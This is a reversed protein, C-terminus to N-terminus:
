LQQWATDIDQAIDPLISDLYTLDADLADPLQPGPSPSVARDDSQHEDYTLSSRFPPRRPGAQDEGLLSPVTQSYFGPKNPFVPNRDGTWDGVVQSSISVFPGVASDVLEGESSGVGNANIDQVVMLVDLPTCGDADSVDYYKPPSFQETPLSTNNPRSNIYEIILLVDLPTVGDKGNVDYPELYNHWPNPGIGTRADPEAPALERHGVNDTAISYFAYKHGESGTFPAETDTTNNLWLDFPGNDTSVYIDFGSIGSGAPDDQGDWRITVVENTTTSPLTEVQSTPGAADITNVVPPTDIPDNFDFYIRAANQIKTGSPLGVITNVVYSISGDGRGFEDNPYLLGVLPNEPMWGTAPDLAMLSVSLTRSSRDLAIDVDIILDNGEITRELRAQYSDLGAPIAFIEGGLTFETLEFTTLDLNEDFTDTIRIWQAPATADAQNEFRITYPMVISGDTAIYGDDGYGAPGLKDNPDVSRVPQSSSKQLRRSNERSIEIITKITNIPLYKEVEDIGLFKKVGEWSREKLIERFSETSFVGEAVLKAILLKGKVGVTAYVDKAAAELVRFSDRKYRERDAREEMEDRLKLSRGISLPMPGSFGPIIIYNGSPDVFTTPTNDSYTYLNLGDAIGVPDKQLFRGLAGDFFRARMFELSNAESMVGWQGVFQFDNAVTETWALEGGFPLYSYTNIPAGLADTLAATSGLADFDYYYSGTATTQNVLGLGHGYGVQWANTTGDYQGVVNGLGTPDIVYDTVRGDVSVAVRNGFADYTYEYVSGDPKSVIVLKNDTNYVYETTEGSTTERILNGDEDYQYITDGVQTYQNLENSTYANTVGNITTSTRNGLADYEYAIDQVSLSSGFTPTFVAHTLQGIADYEYTWTGDLTTMSTRLGAADYEYEFKSTVSGDPAHNLLSTLQGAVDYDYTTYTGNGKDARSLRSLADYSYTVIVSDDEDTLQSLRGLSDYAYNTQHGLEDTMSARRGAADYAYGLFRDDPYDIRTLYDNADHTFTTTGTPDVSETMNGRTDYTFTASSADAYTRSTVRGEADLTYQVSQGRRNIWEDVNGSADYEWRELSSDTYTISVLNGAADYDYDTVNGAADTLLDLQNLHRTYSFHTSFGLASTSRVVNGLTDYAYTTSHGLPDTMRTMNGLSDYDMEVARSLPDVAKEIAGTHNFYYDSRGGLTDTMFVLGGDGRTIDVRVAGSDAHIAVLQGYDNYEYFTHTGDAHAIETLAHGDDYTYSVRLADYGTVEVLHENTADYTYTTERGDQDTVSRIRGTANHAITVAALGNSHALTTLRSKANYGCTIRNANTDEVYDLKGDATFAYISGGLERLMYGGGARDSLTGNDGPRPLYGGRVSPQFIRKSGGPYNIEATGDDRTSLSMDWNNTWGYGFSGLKYRNVISASLSRSFSIDLGPGPAVADIGGALTGVVSYGQAQALEFAMLESVDTVTEGLRRLYAANEGLMSVYDGWTTGVDDTFAAFIKAWAKESMEDPRLSEEMTSWDASSTNDAALVGLTFNIPTSMNLDGQWGVYYIPMRVTEGPQLTGP